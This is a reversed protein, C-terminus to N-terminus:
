IRTGKLYDQPYFAVRKGNRMLRYYKKGDALAIKKFWRTQMVEGSENILYGPFNEVPKWGDLLEPWASYMLREYSRSFRKKEGTKHLSYFYNGVIKNEIEKLLTRNEKHRVDGDSTVEYLPFEPITRWEQKSQPSM